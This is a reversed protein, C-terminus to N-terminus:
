LSILEDDFPTTRKKWSPADDSDDDGDGAGLRGGVVAVSSNIRGICHHGSPLTRKSLGPCIRSLSGWCVM